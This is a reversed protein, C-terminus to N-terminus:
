LRRGQHQKSPDPLLSAGGHWPRQKAKLLNRDVKAASGILTFLDQHKEGHSKPGTGNFWPDHTSWLIIAKLEEVSTGRRLAQLICKRRSPSPKGIHELRCTTQWYAYVETVAQVETAKPARATPRLRGEAELEVLLEQRISEVM